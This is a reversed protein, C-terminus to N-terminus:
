GVLLSEARAARLLAAARTAFGRSVLRRLAHCGNRAPEHRPAQECAIMRKFFQDGLPFAM